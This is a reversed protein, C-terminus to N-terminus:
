SDAGQSRTSRYVRLYDRTRRDRGLLINVSSLAFRLNTDTPDTIPLNMGLNLLPRAPMGFSVNSSGGTINNAPWIERLRRVTELAIRAAQDDAGVTMVLPDLVVEEEAIGTRVAAEVAQEAYRLRGDVTGPIGEQGMCLAIVPLGRGAVIPLIEALAKREASISNILPRGPCVALAAELAAPTRTDICLPVEVVGAVAEVARSLMAVEDIGKGGVNVDVVAAGAAVQQQAERVVLDLDGALLAKRLAPKGSPNIREGIIQVAGQPVIEVVPGRGQLQM